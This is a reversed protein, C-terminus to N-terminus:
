PMAESTASSTASEQTSLDVAGSLLEVARQRHDKSLHGYTASTQQVTDGILQAVTFLDAGRMLLWSAFTHRLVHFTVGMPDDRGPILDADRVIRRFHAEFTFKNLPKAPDRFSPTVWAESSRTALHRELILRLASNVPVHRVSRATKPTWDPQRQVALTGLALDVDFGTRLHIMENVRFGAFLGCAVPFLLAEPTAALLRQAEAESLYRERRTRATSVTEHDIPVYLVRAARKEDRATRAEQRVHWQFLSGVRSVYATVSNPAYGEAILAGQYETVRASTIADLPTEPAQFRLFRNLQTSAANVTGAARNPNAELADLYRRVAEGLAPWPEAAHVAELADAFPRGRERLQAYQELTVGGRKKLALVLLPDGSKFVAVAVAHLREADAKKTGYIARYRPLGDVRFDHEWQGSSASKYM